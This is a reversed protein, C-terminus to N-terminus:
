NLTVFKIKWQFYKWCLLICFLLYFNPIIYWGTVKKVKHLADTIDSNNHTYNSKWKLVSLVIVFLCGSLVRVDLRCAICHAQMAMHLGIKHVRDPFKTFWAWLTSKLTTNDVVNNEFVRLHLNVSLVVLKKKPSPGWCCHSRSQQKGWAVNQLPKQIDGLTMITFHLKPSKLRWPRAFQIKM